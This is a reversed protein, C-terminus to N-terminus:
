YQMIKYIKRLILNEYLKKVYDVLVQQLGIMFRKCGQHSQLGSIVVKGNGGLLDAKGNNKEPTNGKVACNYQFVLKRKRKEIM